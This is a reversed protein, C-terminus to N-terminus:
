KPVLFFRREPTEASRERKESAALSVFGAFWKGLVPDTKARLLMRKEYNTLEKTPDPELRM